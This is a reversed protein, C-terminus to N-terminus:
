QEKMKRHYRFYFQNEFEVRFDSRTWLWTPRRSQLTEWWSQARDSLLQTAHDVRLEDLIMIWVLTKEVKKIWRGAIEAHQDGLFPKYGMQRLSKMIRVLAVMSNKSTMVVPTVLVIPSVLTTFASANTMTGVMARIIWAIFNPDVYLTPARTPAV